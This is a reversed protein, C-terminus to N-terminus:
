NINLIMHQYSIGNNTQIGGSVIFGFKQYVPVALSSSRVWFTKCEQKSECVSRAHDWLRRAVGRGVYKPSVFLQDIKEYDLISIVGYLAGNEECCLIIYAEDNIRNNMTEYSIFSIFNKWSDGNFDDAAQAASLHILKVIENVDNKTIPRIQM